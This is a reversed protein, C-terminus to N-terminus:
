KAPAGSAIWEALTRAAAADVGPNPPMPVPGWVGVSGARIKNALYDAADARGKYKAAVENYGPGVVKHDPAHCALCNNKAPLPQVQAYAPAAGAEAALLALPLILAHAPKM